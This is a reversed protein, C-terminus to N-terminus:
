TKVEEKLMMKRGVLLYRGRSATKDHMVGLKIALNTLHMKEIIRRLFLRIAPRVEHESLYLFDLLSHYRNVVDASNPFYRVHGESDFNPLALCVLTKPKLRKLIEIDHEIHELSTSVITDFQDFMFTKYDEDADFRICEVNTFRELRKKAIKIAESSFDSWVYKEINPNKSLIFEALQGEAGAIEFVTKPQFKNIIDAFIANRIKYSGKAYRGANKRMDEDYFEVSQKM